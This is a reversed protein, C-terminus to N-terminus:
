NEKIKAELLAIGGMERIYENGIRDKLTEGCVWKLMCM